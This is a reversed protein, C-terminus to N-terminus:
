NKSENSITLPTYISRSFLLHSPVGVFFNFKLNKLVSFLNWILQWLYVFLYEPLFYFIFIIFNLLHPHHHPQGHLRLLVFTHTHPNSIQFKQKLKLIGQTGSSQSISTRNTNRLLAQTKFGFWVQLYFSNWTFDFFSVFHEFSLTSWCFSCIRFLNLHFAKTEPM